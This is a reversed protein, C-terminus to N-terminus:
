EVTVWRTARLGLYYRDGIRAKPCPALSFLIRDVWPVVLEVWHTLRVRYADGPNVAVPTGVAGNRSFDVSTMAATASGGGPRNRCLLLAEALAAERAKRGDSRATLAFKRAAFHSATEVAGQSAWLLACQIVAFLLAGLVIGGALFEVM